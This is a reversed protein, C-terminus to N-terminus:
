DFVALDAGSREAADALRVPPVETHGRLVPDGQCLSAAAGSLSVGFYAMAREFGPVTNAGGYHLVSADYVVCDGCGLQAAVVARGGSASGSGSGGGPQASALLAVRDAATKAEAEAEVAETAEATGGAPRARPQLANGEYLLAHAAATHTHPLFVTGGHLPSPVHQLAILVVLRPPLRSSGGSGGYYDPLRSYDGHIAQHTAGPRAILAALEVVEMGDVMGNGPLPPDGHVRPLQAAASELVPRLAAAAAAFVAAVAPDRLPLLLDHRAVAFSVDVAEAFRLRTGPVYSTDDAAAFRHTTGIDSLIDLHGFVAARLRACVAPDVVGDFRAVGHSCLRAAGEPLPTPELPAARGVLASQWEATSEFARTSACGGRALAAGPTVPTLLAAGPTLLVAWVLGCMMDRGCM